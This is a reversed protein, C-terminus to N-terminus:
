HRISKVFGEIKTRVDLEHEIATGTVIADAGAKSLLAAQKETKIGGGVILKTDDIADKVASVMRIPVPKSAGSGAELYIWRMGLYKGALAYAEALKIKDAPIPRADGVWGVTGGPEVIIYAMPLPEIGYRKVFPAGLAQNTTVYMVNRSNLLSMFFIADAIACVGGVDAPFLIIPIDIRNKIERVTYDLTPGGVGVSGGVMIASTGGDAAMTAIEAAKQPTQFDPDILTLHITGCQEIAELLRQEVKV